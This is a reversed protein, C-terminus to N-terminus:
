ALQKNGTCIYPTAIHAVNRKVEATHPMSYWMQKNKWM